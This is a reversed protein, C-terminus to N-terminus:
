QKQKPWITDMWRSAGMVMLWPAQKVDGDENARQSPTLNRTVKMVVVLINEFNTRGGRRRIIYGPNLVTM